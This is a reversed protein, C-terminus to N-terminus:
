DYYTRVQPLSAEGVARVAAPTVGALAGPAPTKLDAALATGFRKWETEFATLDKRRAEPTEDVYVQAALNGRAAALRQLALYWRGDKLAEETKDIAPQVYNKIEVWDESKSPNDRLYHSWRTVEAALPDNQPGRRADGEPRGPADQPGRGSSTWAGMAVVLGLLASVQLRKM